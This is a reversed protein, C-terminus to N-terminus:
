EKVTFNEATKDVLPKFFPCDNADRDEIEVATVTNTKVGTILPAKVWTKGSRERGYKEDFWRVFRGTSFGTSDPAFTTEVAKLPLSSQVILDTLVPTLIDLDLFTCVGVGSM